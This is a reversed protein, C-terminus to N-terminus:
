LTWRTIKERIVSKVQNLSVNELSWAFINYDQNQSYSKILFGNIEIQNVNLHHHINSSNPKISNEEDFKLSGIKTCIENYIYFYKIQM